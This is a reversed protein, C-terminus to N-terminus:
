LLLIGNKEHKIESHNVNPENNIMANSNQFELEEKTLCLSSDVIRPINSPLHKINVNYINGFFVNSDNNRQLDKKKNKIEVFILYKKISIVQNTLKM